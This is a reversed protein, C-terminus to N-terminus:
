RFATAKCSVSQWCNTILSVSGETCSLGSVATANRQAAALKVQFTAAGATAPPDWIKNKCSHGVVEGLDQMGKTREAPVVSISAAAETLHLGTTEVTQIPVFPGIACSTLFLSSLLLTVSQRHM